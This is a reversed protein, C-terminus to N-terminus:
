PGATAHSEGEEIAPDHDGDGKTVMPIPTSAEAPPAPGPREVVARAAIDEREPDGDGGADHRGDGHPKRRRALHPQYRAPDTVASPRRWKPSAFTFARIIQRQPLAFVALMPAVVFM